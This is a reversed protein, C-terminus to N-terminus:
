EITQLYPSRELDAPTVIMSNNDIKEHEGLRDNILMKALPGDLKLDGFRSVDSVMINIAAYSKWVLESCYINEDDWNFKFDYPADIYNLAATALNEAVNSQHATIDHLRRLAIPGRKAFNEFATIKVPGVAEIIELSGDNDNDIVVGVHTINSNTVERIAWSQASYESQLVIDGVKAVDALRDVTIYGKPVSPQLPNCAVLSFLLTTTIM